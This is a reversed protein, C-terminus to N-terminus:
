GNDGNENRAEQIQNALTKVDPTNLWQDRDVSCDGVRKEMQLHFRIAGDSGLKEVLTQIGLEFIENDTITLTDMPVSHHIAKSSVM